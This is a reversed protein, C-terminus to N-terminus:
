RGHCTATSIRVFHAFCRTVSIGMNCANGVPIWLSNASCYIQGAEATAQPAIKVVVKVGMHLCDTKGARSGSLGSHGLSHGAAGFM